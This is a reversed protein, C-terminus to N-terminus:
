FGKGFRWRGAGCHRHAPVARFPSRQSRAHAEQNPILAGIYPAIEPQDHPSSLHRGPSLRSGYDRIDTNYRRQLWLTDYGRAETIIPGPRRRSSLWAVSDLVAEEAAQVDDPTGVHMWVGDLWM